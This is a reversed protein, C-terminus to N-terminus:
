ERGSQAVPVTGPPQAASKGAVSYEGTDFNFLYDDIAVVHEGIISRRSGAGIAEFRTIARFSFNRKGRKFQTWVKAKLVSVNFPKTICDAVGQESLETMDPKRDNSAVLIVPVDNSEYIGMGLDYILDYGDGDPLETDIIIQQYQESELLASAAELTGCSFAHTENDTLARCLREALKFDAEVILIKNMIFDRKCQLVTFFYRVIEKRDKDRCVTESRHMDAMQRRNATGQVKIQRTRLGSMQLGAPLGQQWGSRDDRLYVKIRYTYDKRAANDIIYYFTDIFEHFICM